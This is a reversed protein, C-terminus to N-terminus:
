CADSARPGSAPGGAAAGWVGAALLRSPPDQGLEPRSSEWLPASGSTDGGLLM